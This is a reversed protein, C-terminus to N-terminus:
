QLGNGARLYPLASAALFQVMQMRRSVTTELAKPKVELRVPEGENVPVELLGCSGMAEDALLTGEPIAVYVEDLCGSGKLREGRTGHYLRGELSHRHKVALHYETNHSRSYDWDAYEDFLVNADRLSPEQQRIASELDTIRRKLNRLELVLSDPNIGAAWCEHRDLACVIAIARVPVIMGNKERRSWFAAVDARNHVGNVPVDCGIATPPEPLNCLWELVRRRLAMRRGRQSEAQRASPKRYRLYPIRTSM